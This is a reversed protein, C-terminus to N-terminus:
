KLVKKQWSKQKCHPCSMYRTRGCHVSMLMKGYNPIYKHGCKECKYYGAKQEILLAFLCAVILVVLSVVMMLIPLAKINFEEMIYAAFYYIILMNILSVAILVVEIKLLLKNLEEKKNQLEQIENDKNEM